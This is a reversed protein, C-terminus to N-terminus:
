STSVGGVLPKRVRPAEVRHLETVTGVYGTVKNADNRQVAAEALVWSTGGDARQFRYEAKFPLALETAEQWENLVRDRDDPHTGRAWGQGLAEQETLGAIDCWRENLYLYNGEADTQFIGVPSLQALTWFREESARLAEETRQRAETEAVLRENVSKLQAVGEAVNLELGSDGNSMIVAQHSTVSTSVPTCWLYESDTHFTNARAVSVCLIDVGGASLWETATLSEFDFSQAVLIVRQGQNISNVDVSLHIRLDDAQKTSLRQLFDEATWKAAFAACSIARVSQAQKSGRDFVVVVSQGKPDLALLDARLDSEDSLQIEKGVLFLRQGIEAFFEGPSNLIVESLDYGDGNSAPTLEMQDLSDLKNHERDIKLM